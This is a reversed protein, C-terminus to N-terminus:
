SFSLLDAKPHGEPRLPPGAAQGSRLTCAQERQGGEGGSQEKNLLFFDGLRLATPM